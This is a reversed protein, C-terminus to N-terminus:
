PTSPSRNWASVPAASASRYASATPSRPKSGTKVLPMSSTSRQWRSAAAAHPDSGPRRRPAPPGGRTACRRAAVVLVEGVAADVEVAPLPDDCRAVVGRQPGGAPQPDDVVLDARGPVALRRPQPDRPRHQHALGPQLDGLVSPQAPRDLVGGRGSAPPSRQPSVWKAAASAAASRSWPWSTTTSRRGSHSRAVPRWSSTTRTSRPSTRWSGLGSCTESSQTIECGSSTM